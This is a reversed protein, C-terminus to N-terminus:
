LILPVELGVILVTFGLAALRQNRGEVLAAFPLWWVM